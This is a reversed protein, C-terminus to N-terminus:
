EVVPSTAAVGESVARVGAATVFPTGFVGKDAVACAGRVYLPLVFAVWLWVAEVELTFMMLM